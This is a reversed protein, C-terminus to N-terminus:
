GGCAVEYSRDDTASAAVGYGIAAGAVTAAARGDGKGVTHGLAGGIVAGLLRAGTNDRQVPVAYATGPACGPGGEYQAYGGEYAYGDDYGYVPAYYAPGYYPEGVGGIVIGVERPEYRYGGYWRGQYGDRYRYGYGGNWRRDGDRGNWRGRMDGRYGNRNDYRVAGRDSAAREHVRGAAQRNDDHDYPSAAATGIAATMMLTIATAAFRKM